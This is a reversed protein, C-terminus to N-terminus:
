GLISDVGLDALKTGASSLIKGHVALFTQLQRM